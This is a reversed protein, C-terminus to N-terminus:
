WPQAALVESVKVVLENKTVLEASFYAKAGGVGQDRVVRSIRDYEAPKDVRAIQCVFDRKKNYVMLNGTGPPQNPGMWPVQVKIVMSKAESSKPARPGKTHREPIPDTAIGM